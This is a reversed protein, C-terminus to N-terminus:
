LNQKNEAEQQQGLKSMHQDNIGSTAGRTMLEAGTDETHAGGWRLELRGQKSEM